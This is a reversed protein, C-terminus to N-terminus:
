KVCDLGAAASKAPLNMEIDFALTTKDLKGAIRGSLVGGPKVAGTMKEVKFDKPAQVV